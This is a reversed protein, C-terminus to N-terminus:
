KIMLKENRLLATKVNIMGTKQRTERLKVMKNLLEKRAKEDLGTGMLVPEGYKVVTSWLEEKFDDLTIESEMKQNLESLFERWAKENLTGLFMSKNGEFTNKKSEETSEETHALCHCPCEGNTIEISRLNREGSAELLPELETMKEHTM